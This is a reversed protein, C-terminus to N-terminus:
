FPGCYKIPMLAQEVEPTQHTILRLGDLESEFWKPFMTNDADDRVSEDELENQEVDM